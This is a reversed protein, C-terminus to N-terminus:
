RNLLSERCSEIPPRSGGHTVKSDTCRKRSSVVVHSELARTRTTLSKIVTGGLNWVLYGLITAPLDGKGGPNATTARNTGM